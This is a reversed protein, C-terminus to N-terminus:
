DRIRKMKYMAADAEKLIQEPIDNQYFIKIGISASCQHNLDGIIYKERLKRSIKEAVIDVYKKALDYETDLGLLLVVFEDGGLRAVSDTERVVSSLRRAVEILLRDGAEHGYADNLDKFKNLDLFLLASHSNHRRNFSIAQGLRDMLLRRNPLGTLVDHTAQRRLEAEMRKRDTIDRFVVAVGNGEGHSDLIPTATYEVPFFTGDRRWFVDDEVIRVVGDRLTAYIPCAEAPYFSQDAHHHHITIHAPQGVISEGHWGLMTTAAENQLVIDGKEDIVHVGEQMSKLINELKSNVLKIESLDVFQVLLLNEQNQWLSLIHCEANIAKGFGSILHIDCRSHTNRAIADECALLLGSEKWSAIERFNQKLLVERDTGVLKSLAQNVALCPGDSSYVGIPLPSNLLMAENFKISQTLKKSADELERIVKLKRRQERYLLFFCIAMVMMFISTNIWRRRAEARWGALADNVSLGILLSMPQERIRQMYYIREVHDTASSSSYFVANVGSKDFAVIEPSTVKGGVDQLDQVGNALRLIVNSSDDRLVFLDNDNLKIEKGTLKEALGDLEVSGYIIGGFQGHSLNFRRACVIVWKKTYRGMIPNSIVMGAHPNNKLTQFYPRDSFNFTAEDEGVTNFIVDGAENTAGLMLLSPVRQQLARLDASFQKSDFNKLSAQNRLHDTTALLTLDINQFAGALSASLTAGLDQAMLRTSTLQQDHLQNLNKLQFGITALIVFLPAALQFLLSTRTTFNCSVTSTPHSQM